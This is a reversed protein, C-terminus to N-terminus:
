YKLYSCLFALYGDMDIQKKNGVEEINSMHKYLQYMWKEVFKIKPINFVIYM